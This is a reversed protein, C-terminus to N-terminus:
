YSIGFGSTAGSPNTDEIQEEAINNAFRTRIAELFRDVQDPDGEALLQVRGDPLNRVWGTVAFKRAIWTVTDRFGVGQVRGSYHVLKAISQM